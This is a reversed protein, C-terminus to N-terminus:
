VFQWPNQLNTSIDAGRGGPAPGQCDEDQRRKCVTRVKWDGRRLDLSVGRDKGQSGAPVVGVGVGFRDGAYSVSGVSFTGFRTPRWSPLRRAHMPSLYRRAERGFSSKLPVRPRCWWGMAYVVRGRFWREEKTSCVSFLSQESRQPIHILFNRM